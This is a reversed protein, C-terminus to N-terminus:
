PKPEINSFGGCCRLRMQKHIPQEEMATNIIAPLKNIMDDGATASAGGNIKRNNFWSLYGGECNYKNIVKPGRIARSGKASRAWPHSALTSFIIPRTGM